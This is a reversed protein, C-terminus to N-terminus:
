WAEGSIKSFELLKSTFIFFRFRYDDKKDTKTLYLKYIKRLLRKTKIVLDNNANRIHWIELTKKMEDKSKEKSVGKHHAKRKIIFRLLSLL